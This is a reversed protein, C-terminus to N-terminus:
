DFPWDAHKATPLLSPPTNDSEILCKAGQQFICEYNSKGQKLADDFAQKKIKEIKSSWSVFDGAIPAIQPETVVTDLIVSNSPEMM